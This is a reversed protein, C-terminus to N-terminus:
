RSSWSAPMNIVSRLGIFGQTYRVKVYNFFANLDRCYPDNPNFLECDIVAIHLHVGTSYGTSGMQGLPTNTDVRMGTQLNNAYRSLHAYQSTFKQGNINHYVTVVLAGASDRYIGSINGDAIPYITENTGRPSIIDYAVHGYSPNQTIIGMETPLRWIIRPKEPEKTEVKKEKEITKTKEEKSPLAVEELSELSATKKNAMNINNLLNDLLNDNKEVLEKNAVKVLAINKVDISEYNIKFSTESYAETSKFGVSFLLLSICFIIIAKKKNKDIETNM